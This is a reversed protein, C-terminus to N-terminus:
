LIIGRVVLFEECSDAEDLGGALRVAFAVSDRRFDFGGDFRLEAASSFPLPM